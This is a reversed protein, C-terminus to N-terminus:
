TEEQKRKTNTVLFIGLPDLSLHSGSFSHSKSRGCKKKKEKGHKNDM